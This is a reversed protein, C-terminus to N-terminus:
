CVGGKNLQGIHNNQFWKKRECTLCQLFQPIILDLVKSPNLKTM